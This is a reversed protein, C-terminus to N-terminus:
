GEGEVLKEYNRGMEREYVERYEDRVVPSIAVFRLVDSAIRHAQIGRVGNRRLSVRINGQLRMLHTLTTTHEEVTRGM